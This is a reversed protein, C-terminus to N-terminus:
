PNKVVTFMLLRLLCGPYQKVLGKGSFSEETGNVRESM